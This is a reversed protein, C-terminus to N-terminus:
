GAGDLWGQLVGAEMGLAAAAEEVSGMDSVVQEALERLMGAWSGSAVTYSPRMRGKPPAAASILAAVDLDLGAAIKALTDLSPSLQQTELKSITADAVGARKALERQSLGLEARRGRVVEALSERLGADSM